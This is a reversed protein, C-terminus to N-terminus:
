QAETFMQVLTDGAAPGGGAQPSAGTAGRTSAAGRTGAAGRMATAGRVVISRLRRGLLTMGATGPWDAGMRPRRQLWRAEDDGCLLIAPPDASTLSAHLRADLAQLAQLWAEHDDRLRAALLSEELVFHGQALGENWAALAAPTVPGSLWVSNIPLEGQSEREQNVPHEHWTMQIENLLRRYRRADAGHPLYGEVNRGGAAEASACVLQLPLGASPSSAAHLLWRTPSLVTLALSEEALLPMISDILRQAQASALGQAAGAVLVLHDRALHFHVPELLWGSLSTDFPAVQRTAPLAGAAIGAQKLGPQLRLWRDHALEQPLAGTSPPLEVDAIRLGALSALAALRPRVQAPPLWHPRMLAGAVVIVKAVTASV